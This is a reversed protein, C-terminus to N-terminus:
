KALSSRCRPRGRDHGLTTVGGAAAATITSVTCRHESQSRANRRRAATRQERDRRAKHGVGGDDGRHLSALEEFVDSPQPGAM